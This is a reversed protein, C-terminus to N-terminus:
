INYTTIVTSDLDFITKRKYEWTEDAKLAAARRCLQHVAYNVVINVFSPCIRINCPGEEIEDDSMLSSEFNECDSLSLPDIIYLEGYEFGLRTEFVHEVNVNGTFAECIMKRASMSDVALLVVGELLEADDETFFRGYTEVNIEPNLALLMSKLADTKKTGIHEPFFAQNPLNHAEVIDADWLRFNTCGARAAIMAFNSGTAGCGIITITEELDVPSVWGTHRLFSIQNDM